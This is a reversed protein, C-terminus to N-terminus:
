DDWTTGKLGREMHSDLRGIAKHKWQLHFEVAMPGAHCTKGYWLGKHLYIGMSEFEILWWVIKSNVEIKM